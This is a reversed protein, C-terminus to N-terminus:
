ATLRISEPLAHNASVQVRSLVRQGCHPLAIDKILRSYSYPM